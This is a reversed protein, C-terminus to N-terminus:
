SNSRLNIDARRGAKTNNKSTDDIEVSMEFLSVDGENRVQCNIPTNQAVEIHRKVVNLVDDQLKDMDVGALLESGRQSALIVSLRERAVNRSASAAVPASSTAAGFVKAVRSLFSM